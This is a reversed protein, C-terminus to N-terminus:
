ERAKGVFSNTVRSMILADDLSFQTKQDSTSLLVTIYFGQLDLKINLM